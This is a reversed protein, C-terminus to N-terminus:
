SAKAAEYILSNSKYKEIAMIISDRLPVVIM